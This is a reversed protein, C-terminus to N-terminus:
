SNFIYYDATIVDIPLISSMPPITLIVTDYGTGPGGSEAILYDDLYFQKVGNKYVIIKYTNNQIFHGNPIEYIVNVDDVTGVLQIDEKRIISFNSNDVQLGKSIGSSQLFVKQDDNFQLLDIDSCEVVIDKSLIKHRLEGKLLSARLDSEAVGPIQLLDRTDNFLIPYNFIKITKNRDPTVNRVIFCGNKKLFPAFDDMGM